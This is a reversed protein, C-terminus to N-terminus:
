WGVISCAFIMVTSPRTALTPEAFKLAREVSSSSSILRTREVGVEDPLEIPLEVDVELPAFLDLRASPLIARDAPPDQLADGLRESSSTLRVVRSPEEPDAAATRGKRGVSSGELSRGVTVAGTVQGVHEAVFSGSCRNQVFQPPDRACGHETQPVKL